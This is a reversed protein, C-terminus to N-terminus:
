RVVIIKIVHGERFWFYIGPNIQEGAEIIDGWGTYVQKIIGCKLIQMLYSGKVPNVIQPPRTTFDVIPLRLDSIRETVYEFAGRDWVGDAGRANGDYDINFTETLVKGPDTPFALQLNYVSSDSDIFPDGISEQATGGEDNDYIGTSNFHANHTHDITNEIRDMTPNTVNYFLNNYAYSKKTDVDTLNGVCFVGFESIPSCDIFTNHHVEWNVCLDPYRSDSM